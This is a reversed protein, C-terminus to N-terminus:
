PPDVQYHIRAHSQARVHDEMGDLGPDADHTLAAFTADRLALATMHWDVHILGINPEVYALDFADAQGPVWVHWTASGGRLEVFYADAHADGTYSWHYDLAAPPDLVTLDLFEPFLVEGGPAVHDSIVSSRAGGTGVGGEEVVAVYRVPLGALPGSDDEVLHVVTGGSGVGLGVLALGEAGLDAVPFIVPTDDSSLGLPHAPVVVAVDRTVSAYPQLTGVDVVGGSPVSWGTEIAYDVDRLHAALTELLASVEGGDGAGEIAQQVDAIDFAGTFAYVAAPGEPAPAAFAPAQEGVVVNSPMELDYGYIDLVRDPGVLTLFDFFVPNVRSSAAVFGLQVQLAESEDWWAASGELSGGEDVPKPEVALRLNRTAVDVVSTRYHDAAKATVTVPGSFAGELHGIGDEGTVAYAVPEDSGGITLEAGLLPAGDAADVVRVTLAGPAMVTILSPAADVEQFTATVQTTGEALPTVVGLPSVALVAPDIVDFSDPVVAAHTGDDWEGYAVLELTTATDITFEAPSLALSILEAPAETTDDDGTDDDDGTEDHPDFPQQDPPAEEPCGAAALWAGAALVALWHSRPAM